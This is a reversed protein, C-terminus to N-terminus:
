DTRIQENSDKKKMHDLFKTLETLKDVLDDHKCTKCFQDKMDTLYLCTVALREIRSNPDHSKFCEDLEIAFNYLHETPCIIM